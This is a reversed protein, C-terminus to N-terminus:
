IRIAAVVVAALAIMTVINWRQMRNMRDVLRQELAAMDGKLEARLDTIDGKLEARLAAMEARIQAMEGKLEARLDAMSARLGDNTVPEDLDRAPFHSLMEQLAEEDIINRLGLYLASRSKESLSM